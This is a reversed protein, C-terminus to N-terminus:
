GRVGSESISLSSSPFPSQTPRDTGGLIAVKNGFVANLSAVGRRTKAQDVVDDHLLSATHIMETIESITKQSAAVRASSGDDMAEALAQANASAASASAKPYNPSHFPTLPEHPSAVSKAAAAASPAATHSSYLRQKFSSTLPHTTDASAATPTLLSTQHSYPDLGSTLARAVLLLITPRIRKGICVCFVCLLHM